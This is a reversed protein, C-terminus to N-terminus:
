VPQEAKIAAAAAVTAAVNIATAVAADAHAGSEMAVNRARAARLETIRVIHENVKDPVAALLMLLADLSATENNLKHRMTAMEVAHMERLRVNEAEVSALRVEVALLRALLDKRLLGDADLRDRRLTPFGRLYVTVIATVCLAFVGIIGVSPLIGILATALPAMM